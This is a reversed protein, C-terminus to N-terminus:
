MKGPACGPDRHQILPGPASARLAAVPRLKPSSPAAAAGQPAQGGHQVAGVAARGAPRVLVSHGPIFGRDQALLLRAQPARVLVGHDPISGRDPAPLLTGPPGAGGHQVAGVAARGAPRVLVGHGPLIGKTRPLCYRAQAAQGGHQVRATGRDQAPLLAGPPGAAM